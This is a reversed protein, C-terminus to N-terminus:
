GATRLMVKLNHRPIVILALWSQGPNKFNNKLEPMGAAEVLIWDSSLLDGMFLM